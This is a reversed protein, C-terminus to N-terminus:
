YPNADPNSRTDIVRIVYLIDSVIEYYLANYKAVLVRRIGIQKLSPTGIEPASELIDLQKYFARVFRIAVEPSRTEGLFDAIANVDADASPTIIIKVTAM